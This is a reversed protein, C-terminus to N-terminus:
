YRNRQVSLAATCPPPSPPLGDLLDQHTARGLWSRQMRLLLERDVPSLANAAFAGCAAASSRFQTAKVSQSQESM